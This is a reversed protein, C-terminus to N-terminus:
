AENEEGIQNEEALFDKLQPLEKLSNIGFYNMFNDSTGYLMPRGIGDSKGKIEILKKELLRQVSYDCSVGRIQEMQHKTVPQKYAIIALTELASTSLKKTSRHKLLTSISGQFAPKTLFQLGGGIKLVEFPYDESSYKLVITAVVDEIDSISVDADLSESMCSQLEDITIPEQNCFILAEIHNQLHQL